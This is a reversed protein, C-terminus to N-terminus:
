ECFGIGMEKCLEAVGETKGIGSKGIGMVPTYDEDEIQERIFNLFTALKIERMNMNEAM